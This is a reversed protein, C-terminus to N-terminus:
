TYGHNPVMSVTGQHNAICTLRRSYSDARWPRASFTNLAALLLGSHRHRATCASYSAKPAAHWLIDSMGNCADHTEILNPYNSTTFPAEAQAHMILDTEPAKGTDVM